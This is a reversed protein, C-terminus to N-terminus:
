FDFKPITNAAVDKGQSNQNYCYDAVSEVTNDNVPMEKHLEFYERLVKTMGNRKDINEKDTGYYEKALQVTKNQQEIMRWQFFEKEFQKQTKNKANRMRNYIFFILNQNYAETPKINTHNKYFQTVFSEFKAQPIDKSYPVREPMQGLPNVETTPNKDEVVVQTVVPMNHEKAVEKAKEENEEAKRQAEEKRQEAVHKNASNFFEQRQQERREAEEKQDRQMINLQLRQIGIQRSLIEKAENSAAFERDFRSPIYDGKYETLVFTIFNQIEAPKNINFDSHRRKYDYLMAGIKNKYEPSLARFEDGLDNEVHTWYYIRFEKDFTEPDYEVMLRTIYNYLDRVISIEIQEEQHESFWKNM